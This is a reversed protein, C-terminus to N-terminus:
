APGQTLALFADELSAPTVELGDLAVGAEVLRRVVAGGDRAYLTVRCGREQRRIVGDVLPISGPSAVLKVQTVGAGARIAEISGSAIVTGDAIVIIRTALQEAEELHHTTLLVTRGTAAFRRIENWLLHRAEVDLGSTPEDLVALEPRGAFALALALRRRTGGSLGGAQRREVHVLDFRRVLEEAPEPDPYHARVFDVLERVRLTTPFSAEQPTWGCRARASPDRPPCGFLRVDGADARRLGLLIRLTTTKGAGNAGLLAVVEGCDARLDVGRLAEVAAFSKRVATM